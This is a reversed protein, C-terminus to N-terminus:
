PATRRVKIVNSDIGYHVPELDPDELLQMLVDASRRGLEDLPESMTTIGYAESVPLDGMGVIAVDDPVRIGIENLIKLLHIAAADNLAFFADPKESDLFTTEIIELSPLTFVGGRFIWKFNTELGAQELTRLYANFREIDAIMGHRAGIFGIRKRGSRILHNVATVVAPECNWTVTSVDELGTMDELVSGLFVMPLRQEALMSLDDQSNATPQCIVGEDRRELIAYIERHEMEGMVDEMATHFGYPVIIPLFGKPCLQQIIGRTIRHAWDMQLDPFLLSVIGTKQGQLSRASQNPIYGLKRAVAQVKSATKPSVKRKEAQGSLVYSVTGTSLNLHEAITSMTVNKSRKVAM